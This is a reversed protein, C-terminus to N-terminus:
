WKMVWPVTSSTVNVVNACTSDGYPDFYRPVKSVVDMYLSRTEVPEPLMIIVGGDCPIEWRRDHERELRERWKRDRMPKLFHEQRKVARDFKALRREAKRSRKRPLYRKM